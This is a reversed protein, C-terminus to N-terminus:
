RMSDGENLIVNVYNNLRAMLKKNCSDDWSRMRYCKERIHWNSWGKLGLGFLLCKIMQGWVSLTDSQSVFDRSQFGPRVLESVSVEMDTVRSPKSVYSQLCSSRQAFSELPRSVSRWWCQEASWFCVWAGWQPLGRTGSAEALVFGCLRIHCCRSRWCRFLLFSPRLLGPM